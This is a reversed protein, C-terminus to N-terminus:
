KHVLSSVQIEKLKMVDYCYQSDLTCGLDLIGIMKMDHFSKITSQGIYIFSDFRSNIYTFNEINKESPFPSIMTIHHGAAHLSKMIAHNCSYHSKATIPFIGLIRFANSVSLSGM